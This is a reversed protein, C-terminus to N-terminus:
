IDLGPLGDLSLQRPKKTAARAAGRAHGQGGLPSGGGAFVLAGRNYLAIIGFSVSSPPFVLVGCFWLAVCGRGGWMAVM